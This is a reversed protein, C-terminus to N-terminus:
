SVTCIFPVRYLPLSLSVQEPPPFLQPSHIPSSCPILLFPFSPYPVLPCNLTLPRYPLLLNHSCLNSQTLPPFFQPAPCHPFPHLCHLPSLVFFYTSKPLFPSIQSMLPGPSSAGVYSGKLSQVFDCLLEWLKTACALATHAKHNESSADEGLVMAGMWYWPGEGVRSRDWSWAAYAM